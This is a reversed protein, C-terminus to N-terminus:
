LNNEQKFQQLTKFVPREDIEFDTVDGGNEIFMSDRAQEWAYTIFKKLREIEKDKESIESQALSYGQECGSVFASKGMHVSNGGYFKVAAQEIKDKIDQNM